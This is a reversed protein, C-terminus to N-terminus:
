EHSVQQLQDRYASFIKSKSVFGVYKGASDVVPLNWASSIEFKNMVSEMSEDQTVVEPLQKMVRVVDLTDYLERSFMIDRIDDLLIIGCLVGDDDVVPFINRRSNAIVAILDSLKKDPAITAFNTEVLDSTRLLTLVARDSDHTLLAGQIRKTYISYTEFARITAFSILATIILPMVAISIYNLM